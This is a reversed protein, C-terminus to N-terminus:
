NTKTSDGTEKKAGTNADNLVGFSSPASSNVKVTERKAASGPRSVEPNYNDDGTTVTSNSATPNTINPREYIQFGNSMNRFKQGGTPSSQVYAPNDNPMNGMQQPNMGPQTNTNALHQGMPMTNSSNSQGWFTDCASLAGTACLILLLKKMALVRGTLRLSLLLM